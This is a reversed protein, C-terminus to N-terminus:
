ADGWTYRRKLNNLQDHRFRGFHQLQGVVIGPSVGVRRAFRMVARGDLPLRLMEARYEAPILTNAAFANAEDEEKKTLLNDGELLIRRDGHLVLHGAEHFFTFWFQDDSLHRFSLLIM